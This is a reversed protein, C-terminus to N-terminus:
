DKFLCSNKLTVPRIYHEIPQMFMSMVAIEESITIFVLRFLSEDSRNVERSFLYINLITAFCQEPVNYEFLKMVNAYFSRLLNYSKIVIIREATSHLNVRDRRRM